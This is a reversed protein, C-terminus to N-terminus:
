EDFSFESGIGLSFAKRYAIGAVAVDLCGMGIPVVLTREDSIDGVTKAGTALDSITCYISKETIRGAMALARLNGRHLCQGVNDVIIKNSSLICKEDCEQYSGMSFYITGKHFWDGKIFANNAPTVSIFADNETVKSPDNAVVIEGQVKDAMDAKFKEAAARIPDYVTLRDVHFIETLAMAQTHGQVGAGYLGINVHKKDGLLYRLTVATQAGTRMNTIWAGDLVALFDGYNPHVLMILANIFPRGIERRGAGWGGAWKQGAIDQWGIYAPMANLSAKYPLNTPESDGLNLNLKTPNLTKGEGLDRFTRDVINIVDGMSVLKAIESEKLLLTKM